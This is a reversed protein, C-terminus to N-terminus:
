KKRASRDLVSRYPPVADKGTKLTFPKQNMDKWWRMFRAELEAVKEPHKKALNNTETRDLDLHYLEWPQNFSSALKWKGAIIARNSSYHLFIADRDKPEKGKFVPVLSRGPLPPLTKGKYSSPYDLGALELVTPM